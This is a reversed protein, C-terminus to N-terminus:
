PHRRKTVKLKEALNVMWEMNRGILPNHFEKRLGYIIPKMFEWDEILADELIAILLNSDITEKRALLAFTEYLRGVRQMAKGEKANSYKQRWEEYSNITCKKMLERDRDVNQNTWIEYLRIITQINTAAEIYKLHRRYNRLQLLGFFATVTVATAAIITSVTQVDAFM